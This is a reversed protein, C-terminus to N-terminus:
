AEDWTEQPVLGVGANVSQRKAVMLEHAIFAADLLRVFDEADRAGEDHLFQATRLFDFVGNDEGYSVFQRLASDGNYKAMLASLGVGEFAPSYLEDPILCGVACRDGGATRYKCVGSEAKALVADDRDFYKRIAVYAERVTSPAEVANLVIQKM